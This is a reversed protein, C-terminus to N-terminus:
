PIAPFNTVSGGLAEVIDKVARYVDANTSFDYKNGALPTAPLIDKTLALTGSNTPFSLSVATAGKPILISDPYIRLQKTEDQNLIDVYAVNAETGFLIKGQGPFIAGSGVTQLAGDAKDLSSQVGSALAAYPIANTPYPLVDQKNGLDSVLAIVGSDTPATLVSRADEPPVIEVAGYEDKNIVLGGHINGKLLTMLGWEDMNISGNAATITGNVRLSGTITGGIKQLANVALNSVNAYDGPTPAVTEITNVLVTNNTTFDSETGTVASITVEGAANTTVFVNDGAKVSEPKLYKQSLIGQIEQRAGEDQFTKTTGDPLRVSTIYGAGLASAAALVAFGLVTLRM